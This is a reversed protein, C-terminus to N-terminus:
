STHSLSSKQLFFWICAEQRQWEPKWDTRTNGHCSWREESRSDYEETHHGAKSEQRTAASGCHFFPSAAGECYM